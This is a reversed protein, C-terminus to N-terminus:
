ENERDDGGVKFTLGFSYSEDSSKQINSIFISSFSSIQKLNYEFEAIAPKSMGEGNITVSNASITMSSLRLDSPLADAITVLLNEDIISSQTINDGAAEMAEVIQTLEELLAQKSNIRSIDETALIEEIDQDLKALVQLQEGIQWYNWGTYSALSIMFVLFIVNVVRVASSRTKKKTKYGEFFNYDVM